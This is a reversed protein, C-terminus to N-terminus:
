LIPQNIEMPLAQKLQMLHTRLSNEEVQLVATSALLEGCEDLMARGRAKVNALESVLCNMAEVRAGATVPLRLTCAKLAETAGSVSASHEREMLTWDDLYVMQENLVSNLKLEQKLLWLNIRKMTVSDRLKSTTNWVNFLAKEATIKQVSTADDARANVYRWQMYRNYLLRLQHADEIHNADKKGRRVDAIFSLVSSSNSSRSTVSSVSSISPFPSSPRSRSPSIMGRSPTSSPFPTKNPSAPRSPGPTPLSWSRSARLTSGSSCTSVGFSSSLLKNPVGAHMNYEIRSDESFNVLNTLESQAKKVGRCVADSAPTRRLPSIGRGSLSLSSTKGGKNTLDISRNLPIPSMKVATRGHLQRNSAHLNDTPKSNELQDSTNRGRLPTRKREPTAKRHVGSDETRRNAVNASSKLMHDSASHTVPKEKKSVPLSFTDSQFSVCLSRMTSPWLGEPTRGGVLIRRSSCQMEATVDEIPTSPSPPSPPTSPRRREASLSRKPFSPSSAPLSRAVNPSPYRRPVGPTSASSSAVAAKYRSSVDRTRPKRNVAINKASPVLPPRVIEETRGGKQVAEEVGYVDM